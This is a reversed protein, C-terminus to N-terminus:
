FKTSGKTNLNPSQDSLSSIRFVLILYMFIVILNYSSIGQVSLDVLGGKIPPAARGKKDSSM